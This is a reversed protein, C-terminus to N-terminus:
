NAPYQDVTFEYRGAVFRWEGVRLTGCGCIAAALRGNIDFHLGCGLCSVAAPPHDEGADDIYVVAPGHQEKRLSELEVLLEERRVRKRAAEAQQEEKARDIAARHLRERLDNFLSDIDPFLADSFALGGSEATPRPKMASAKLAVPYRGAWITFEALHDLLVRKDQTLDGVAAEDALWRLDHGKRPPWNIWRM